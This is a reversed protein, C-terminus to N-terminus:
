AISSNMELILLRTATDEPPEIVFPSISEYSTPEYNFYFFTLFYNPVFLRRTGASVGPKFRTFFDIRQSTSRYCLRCVSENRCETTRNSTQFLTSYSGKWASHNNSLCQFWISNSKF